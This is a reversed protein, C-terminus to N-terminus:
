FEARLGLLLSRGPLPVYEKLPSAHRRLEEDLLNTGRLFLLVGPNWAEWRYSFEASLAVGGDTPLENRATDDQDDYWQADVAAHLAGADYEIGAMLRLPPIQPLNGGDDLKGRVLDGGVRGHLEGGSTRYLPFELEAEVGYFEADGQTYQFVPLGDEEQGTPAAYIYDAFDSYFVSVHWHLEGEARLGLDITTAAEKDLRDDGIEFRGVALHPGNAYLETAQPHRESRTLHVAAGLTDDFQWLLGGALTYATDSYDRAEARTEIEQRELRMGLDLTFDGFARQEVVFASLAETQSPPIYAEAGEAELDLDTYQLGLTGDWGALTRHGLHLRADLGTQEFRTGVESGELEEHQYDNWAARVLVNDLWGELERWEARFDYRDQEQDIRVTQAEEEGEVPEVVPDAGEEEHHEGPGPLGYDTQHRSWALGIVSNEGIWSAGLTGGSTDSDSNRVKGRTLDPEEGDAIAEDRAAKSWAYGPVEVDDTSRDYLAAHVGFAGVRADLKGVASLEGTATDTRLEGAGALDEDDADPIRGDVVNVVGGVAGSGYLLTTPGKLIEVQEALVDEIAVSHDPSLNSVDLASVGDQLMLVREGSLGRIIPRSARPGFYSASVGPLSALSEGLSSAIGRRLDDGALVIASQALDIASARLPSATVVIEELELHQAPSTGALLAGIATALAGHSKRM